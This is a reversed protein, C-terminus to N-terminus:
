ITENTIIGMVIAGWIVGYLTWYAPQIIIQYKELISGLIIYFITVLLSIINRKM